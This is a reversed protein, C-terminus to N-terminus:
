NNALPEAHEGGNPSLRPAGRMNNVRPLVFASPPPDPVIPKINKKGRILYLPNEVTASQGRQDYHYKTGTSVRTARSGVSATSKSHMSTNDAQIDLYGNDIGGVAMNLYGSDACVSPDM